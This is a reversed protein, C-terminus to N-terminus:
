VRRRRICAYPTGTSVVPTLSPISYLVRRTRVKILPSVAFISFSTPTVYWMGRRWCCCWSASAWSFRRGRGSRTAVGILCSSCVRVNTILQSYSSRRSCAEFVILSCSVDIV